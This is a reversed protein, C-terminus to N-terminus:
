ERIPIGEDSELKSLDQLFPTLIKKFGYKKVDSDCCLLLVHISSLESNIHPPFNQITYYFSGLKHFGTKSGLPNVIELEDYYLQIRIAHKHRMFFPHIKFHQGDLFSLLTNDDPSKRESMITQRVDKNSLILKLSDIIPVYQCTEMIMKPIYTGSDRDLVNDIRYGLPIEVPEIYATHTKLAAIQQDLTRLECFPNDFDFVQLVEKVSNDNLMDRDRFINTVKQRLLNRMNLFLEECEDVIQTVTSGTMSGKCQFKAIMRMVFTRLEFAIDNGDENYDDDVPDENENVHDIEVNEIEENYIEYLANIVNAPALENRNRQILHNEKIHKRLTYFHAFRRRCGNQGCEFGAKGMGRNITFGHSSRLHRVLGDLGGSVLNQCVSCNLREM